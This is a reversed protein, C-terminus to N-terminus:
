ARSRGRKRWWAAVAQVHTAEPHRRRHDRMHRNYEFQSEIPAPGSQLSERCVALAASLPQGVGTALFARLAGNFRFGRGCRSEFFGRLARTCRWGEGIRTSPTFTAPMIGRVRAARAPVREIRGALHNAVRRTLDAKSGGGSLGQARCFAALEAKLWYWARFDAETLRTTLAPRPM